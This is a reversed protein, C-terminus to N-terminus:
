PGIAVASNVNVAAKHNVSATKSNSAFDADGIQNGIKDKHVTIWNRSRRDYWTEVETGDKLITTM